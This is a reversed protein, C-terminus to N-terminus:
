FYKQITGEKEIINLSREYDFQPSLSCISSLVPNKLIQYLTDFQEMLYNRSKGLLLKSFYDAEKEENFIENESLHDLLHHGLEHGFQFDKIFSKKNLLIYKKGNDLIIASPIIVEEDEIVNIGKDKALQRLGDFSNTNYQNKLESVLDDISKKREKNM